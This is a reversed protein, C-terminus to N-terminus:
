ATWSAGGIDIKDLRIGEPTQVAIEMARAAAPASGEAELIRVLGLASVESAQWPLARWRTDLHSKIVAVARASGSRDSGWGVAVTGSGAVICDVGALRVLSAFPRKAGPSYAWRGVGHGTVVFLNDDTAFAGVVGPLDLISRARSWTRNSGLVTTSVRVGDTFTLRVMSAHVRSVALVRPNGDTVGVAEWEVIVPDSELNSLSGVVFGGPVGAAALTGDASVVVVPDTHPARDDDLTALWFEGTRDACVQRALVAATDDTEAVTDKVVPLPGYSPSDPSTRPRSPAVAEAGMLRRLYVAVPSGLREARDLWERAAEVDGRDSLLVALNVMAGTDDDNAASSWWEQAEATRHRTYLWGGVAGRAQPALAAGDLAGVDHDDPRLREVLADLLRFSGDVQRTLVAHPSGPAIGATAWTFVEDWEGASPRRRNPTSRAVHREALHAIEDETAGAPFAITADVLAAVLAGRVGGARLAQRARLELEEVSAFYEGVRVLRSTDAGFLRAAATLEASDLVAPYDIRASTVMSVLDRSAGPSVGEAWDDLATDHLIVVLRTRESLRRLREATFGNTPNLGNLHADDFVIVSPPEPTKNLRELVAPPVDPASNIWWTVAGPLHSRLLEFVGRSKGAKPPGVIVTLGPAGGDLAQVIGTDVTRELYPPVDGDFAWSGLGLSIPDLRSAPAADIALLNRDDHRRKRVAREQAIQGGRERGATRLNILEDLVDEFDTWEDAEAPREDVLATVAAVLAERVVDEKPASARATWQAWYNSQWSKLRGDDGRREYAYQWDEALGELLDNESLYAQMRRVVAAGGGAADRAARLWASYAAKVLTEEESAM